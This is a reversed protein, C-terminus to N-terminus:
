LSRSRFGRQPQQPVGVDRGPSGPLHAPDPHRGGRYPTRAVPEPSGRSGAPHQRGPQGAAAGGEGRGAGKGTICGRRHRRRQPAAAQRGARGPGSCGAGGKLLGQGGGEWHPSEWRAKGARRGPCGRLAKLAPIGLSLRRKNKLRSPRTNAKCGQTEATHHLARLKVDVCVGGRRFAM